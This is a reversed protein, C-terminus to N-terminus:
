FLGSHSLDVCFLQDEHDCDDDNTEEEDADDLNFDVGDDIDVSGDESEAEDIEYGHKDVDPTDVEGFAFFQQLRGFVVGFEVLFFVAVPFAPVVLQLLFALLSTWPVFFINLYLHHFHLQFYLLIWICHCHRM